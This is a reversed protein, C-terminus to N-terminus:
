PEGRYAKAAPEWIPGLVKELDACRRVTIPACGRELDSYTRHSLRLLLATARITRGSAIRNLKCQTALAERWTRAFKPDLGHEQRNARIAHAAKIKGKAHDKRITTRIRRPHTHKQPNM